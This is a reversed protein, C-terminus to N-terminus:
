AIKGAFLAPLGNCTPLAPRKVAREKPPDFRFRVTRGAGRPTRDCACVFGKFRAIRTAQAMNRKPQDQIL